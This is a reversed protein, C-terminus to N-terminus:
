LSRIRYVRKRGALMLETLAWVMADARDPSGGRSYGGRYSLAALEDELEPFAGAFRAAGAEFLAAVPEARAVKGEAAHVLKLPLAISAGRLVSEVMAGGNNKEAVVKHARWAAAAAAVKRAWGEPSLGGASHDAIVYAIDDEGLGCAVIGCTGGASAPPDVGIVIRRFKVEDGAVDISTRCQEILARPWLAGEAEGLLVGDMEQRAFRTGAYAKAVAERFDACLHPNDRTRGGTVRVRDLGVIANLAAIPKPTTTVMARPAHGLRLGLMLNDWSRDPQPWAALEDCWAFHHQPGRLKDPRAGSFAFACAGNPWVLQRKSAIWRPTEDERAVAIIGSEGDVMVKRVDDLTAGVLAIRAEPMERARANVWEAGARTKGFGRGAMMLWVRWDGGPEEQGRITWAPWHEDLTMREGPSLSRLLRMMVPDPLRRAGEAMFARLTPLLSM